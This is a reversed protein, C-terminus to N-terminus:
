VTMLAYSCVLVDNERVEPLPLEVLGFDEPKSYQLARMTKPLDAAM